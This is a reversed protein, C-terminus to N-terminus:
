EISVSQLEVPTLSGDVSFMLNFSGNTQANWSSGMNNSTALRNPITGVGANNLDATQSWLTFNVDSPVLVLWYKTSAALSITGMPSLTQTGVTSTVGSGDLTGISSGPSDSSDSYIFGTLTQGANRAGRFTVQAVDYPNGDTIFQHGYWFTSQLSAAAGAANSMNSVIETGLSNPFLFGFAFLFSAM